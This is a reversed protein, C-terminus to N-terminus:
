KLSVNELVHEAFGHGAEDYLNFTICGLAELEKRQDPFRVMVAITGEYSTKKVLKVVSRNEQHNSLNVMILEVYSLDLHQWFQSDNGDALIVNYGALKRSRVKESNEEIAVISTNCTRQLHDYVGTGVRGLGLILVKTQGIYVPQEIALRNSREFQQFFRQHRAFIFHASKNFPSAFLYSLSLAIAMMVLWDPDLHAQSVALSIVILGFESYNSLALSSLFATRARLKMAVFLFFFLVPKIVLAAVLILAVGALPLSPLGHLGISLFFGVLLLDKFDMLSTYLEKSKSSNAILAGALLAGLDDKLGVQEFLATAGFALAFGALILLEGHGCYSLIRNLLPRLPIFLFLLLSYATPAKDSQTGMYIVAGLDQVVLIGIAIVAFLSNAEGKEDFIKVAFITSSFALGFSLIWLGKHTIPPLSPILQTVSNLILFFIPVIIAIHVLSIGFVYPASITKFRLKLGITFLLLIEGANALHEILGQQEFGLAHVFFGAILFGILSPQGISKFLLGFGLAALLIIPDLM